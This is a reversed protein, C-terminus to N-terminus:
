LGSQSQKAVLFSLVNSSTTAPYPYTLTVNVLQLNSSSTLTAGPIPPTGTGSTSFTAVFYPTTNASRGTSSLLLTGTRTYYQTSGSLLLPDTGSTALGSYPMEQLESSLQQAIAATGYQVASGQMTDMGIPLLALIVLLSSTAIGM